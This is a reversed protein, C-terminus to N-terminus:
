SALHLCPVPDGNADGANQMEYKAHRRSVGLTLELRANRALHTM